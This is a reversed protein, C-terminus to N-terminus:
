WAQSLLAQDSMEALDEQVACGLLDLKQTAAFSAIFYLM